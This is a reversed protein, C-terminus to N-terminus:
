LMGEHFLICDDFLPCFDSLFDNEYEPTESEFSQHSASIENNRDLTSLTYYRNRLQIENRNNFFQELLKWKFGFERTKERLIQDEENTWPSQNITPSLYHRYRDRCQRPTRNKLESAVKKWNNPGYKLVLLCLNRDEIETFKSKKSSKRSNSAGFKSTNLHCEQMPPESVLEFYQDNFLDIAPLDDPDSFEINDQILDYNPHFKHNMKQKAIPMMNQPLKITFVKSGEVPFYTQTATPSLEYSTPSNIGSEHNLSMSQMRSLFSMILNTDCNLRINKQLYHSIGKFM